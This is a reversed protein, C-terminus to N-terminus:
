IMARLRGKVGASGAHVDHRPWPTRRGPFRMRPPKGWGPAPAGAANQLHLGDGRSRHGSDRDGDRLGPQARRFPGGGVDRFSELSERWVGLDYSTPTVAATTELSRYRVLHIREGAEFPMPAEVADLIQGPALGVPIGVALSLVSVATLLPHKVMMRFGLKVDLWSAELDWLGPLSRRARAGALSSASAVTNRLYRAQTRWRPMGRARDGRM